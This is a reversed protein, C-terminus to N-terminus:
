TEDGYRGPGRFHESLEASPKWGLETKAKECSYTIETACSRLFAPGLYMSIKRFLGSFKGLARATAGVADAVRYPFFVYRVKHPGHESLLDMYQTQTLRTDSVINYAQGCSEESSAALIMADVTDDVYVAPLGVSNLGIKVFLRGGLLPYGIRSLRHGPAYVVGPRLITADLGSEEVHRLIIKEAEIKSEIYPSLESTAYGTEETITTAESPVPYVAITSIYILKKVGQKLAAEVVRETGRVTAEAFEAPTGGMAAGLHYVVDAGELAAHVSAEDRLDGEVLDAGMEYLDSARYENRVFVRVDTDGAGHLAKVLRRGIFGTAGTVVALPKGARRERRPREAAVVARLKGPARPFGQEEMQKWATDMVRVTRLAHETSIPCPTGQEIARYFQGALDELGEFASFSGTAVRVVNSIVGGLIQLGETINMWARTVFSPIGQVHAYKKLRKNQLDVFLTGRSGFYRVYHARPASAFSATVSAALSGDGLLIRMEGAMDPPLTGAASVSRIESIDGLFPLALSLPHDMTNQLLGGPMQYVWHKYVQGFYRNKPQSVLDGGFHSDIGRLTGIGGSEIIKRARRMVGDFLFNHGVCLMRGSREAAAVMEEAQEIDLGFPKEVYVHCGAELAAVTLPCHTAAPTVIHVVDPKAEAIMDGMDEFRASVNFLDTTHALAEANVDALGVVKAGRIRRVAKLHAIAM